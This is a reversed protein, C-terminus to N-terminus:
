KKEYVITEKNTIKDSEFVTKGDESILLKISGADDSIKQITCSKVYDGWFAKSRNGNTGSIGEKIEKGGKVYVYSGSFTVAKPLITGEVSINLSKEKTAPNAIKEEVTSSLYFVGDKTGYPMSISNGNETYEVYILGVIALNPKYRVGNLENTPQFDAPLAVLKVSGIAHSFLDATEDNMDAMMSKSVGHWNFLAHFANTDKSKLASQIKSRLQEASRPTDKASAMTLGLTIIAINLCVILLKM